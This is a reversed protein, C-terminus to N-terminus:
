KTNFEKKHNITTKKDGETWTRRIEKEIGDGGRIRIQEGGVGM